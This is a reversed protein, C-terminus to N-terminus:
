YYLKIIKNEYDFEFSDTDYLDWMVIEAEREDRIYVEKCDYYERYDGIFEKFTVEKTKM